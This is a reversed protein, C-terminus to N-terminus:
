DVSLGTSNYVSAHFAVTNVIVSLMRVKYCFKALSINICCNNMCINFAKFPLENKVNTVKCCQFLVAM